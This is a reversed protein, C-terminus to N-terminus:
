HSTFLSANPIVSPLFIKGKSLGLSQNCEFYRTSFKDMLQEFLNRDRQRPAPIKKFLRRCCIVSSVEVDFKKIFAVAFSYLFPESRRPLLINVEIIYLVLQSM